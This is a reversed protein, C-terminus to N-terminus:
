QGSGEQDSPGNGAPTQSELAGVTAELRPLLNQLLNGNGVLGDRGGFGFLSFGEERGKGGGKNADGEGGGKGNEKDDDKDDDGGKGDNRNDEVGRKGDQGGMLTQVLQVVTSFCDLFVDLDTPEEEESPEIDTDTGDTTDTDGGTDTTDTGDSTDTTDTTTDTGDTTTDTTDDQQGPDSGDQGDSDGDSDDAGSYPQCNAGRVYSQIWPAYSAVNTYVDEYKDSACGGYGFSVIGVQLMSNDFM